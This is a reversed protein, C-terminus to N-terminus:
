LYSEESHRPSRGGGGSGLTAGDPLRPETVMKLLFSRVRSKSTILFKRGMADVKMMTSTLNAEM